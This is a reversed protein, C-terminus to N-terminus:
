APAGVRGELSEEVTTLLARVDIPKPLYARAGLRLMREVQASTADASLVIVPVDRTRPDAHLRGLVQEGPLDPLNVDLLIVDPRHQQALDVGLNGQAATMLHIGPRRAFIKEILELNSPNDEICLVRAGAHGGAPMGQVAVEADAGAADAPAQAESLEVAFRTGIGVESEVTVSGDMGAVLGRSLALGLGTGDVGSQDAGLREFPQFLRPLEDAPIGSGTDDVAIRLRGGEVAEM